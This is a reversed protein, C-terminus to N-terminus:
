FFNTGKFTNSEDFVNSLSIESGDKDIIKDGNNYLTEVIRYITEIKDWLIADLLISKTSTFCIEKTKLKEIIEEELLMAKTKM